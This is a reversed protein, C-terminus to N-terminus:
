ESALSRPNGATQVSKGKSDKNDGALFTARLRKM